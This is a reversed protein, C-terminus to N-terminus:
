PPRFRGRALAKSPTHVFTWEVSLNVPVVSLVPLFLENLAGETIHNVIIEDIIILMNKEAQSWM